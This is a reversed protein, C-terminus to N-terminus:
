GGFCPFGALVVLGGVKGLGQSLFYQVLGGGASHGILVLDEGAFEGGRRGSEFGSVWAVAAGLDEAMARKGTGFV